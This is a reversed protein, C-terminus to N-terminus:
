KIYKLVDYNKREDPDLLIYLNKLIIEKNRDSLERYIDILEEEQLTFENKTKPPTPNELLYDLSVNYYNAIKILTEIDPTRNEHEYQNYTNNKIGLIEAFEKQSLGHKLRLEKLKM